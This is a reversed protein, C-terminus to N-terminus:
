KYTDALAVDLDRLKEFVDSIFCCINHVGSWVCVLFMMIMVMMVSM